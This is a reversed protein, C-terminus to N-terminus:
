YESRKDSDDSCFTGDINDQANALRMKIDRKMQPGKLHEM